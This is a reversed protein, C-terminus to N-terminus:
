ITSRVSASRIRSISRSSRNPATRRLRRPTDAPALRRRCACKGAALSGRDRITVPAPETAILLGPQRRIQLDVGALEAVKAADPGAANIVVDAPLTEGSALSVTDVAGEPGSLGVVEDHVLRAGYQRVASTVAGHALGIGNVWGEYPTYFVEEVRDPDIFLDPEMERMVREPELTEVRYGWSRLRSVTEHLRKVQDTDDANVWQIGGDLRYWDGNLERALDQHERISRANLRHYDRPTKGFSNTWAFSRRSTGSGPFAREVITVSAGAQALRYATVAGVVGAGIVVIKADRLFESEVAM